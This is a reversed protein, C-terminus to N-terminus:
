DICWESKEATWDGVVARYENDILYNEGEIIVRDSKEEFLAEKAHIQANHANHRSSDTHDAKFIRGSDARRAYTVGDREETVLVMVFYTSVLVGSDQIKRTMLLAIRNFPGEPITFHEYGQVARTKIDKVIYYGWHDNTGRIWLQNHIQHILPFGIVRLAISYANVLLGKETPSARTDDYIHGTKAGLLTKPAWRYGVTDLRPYPFYMWAESIHKLQKWFCAMRDQRGVSLLPTRDIAMLSALCLSEDEQISTTRTILATASVDLSVVPPKHPQESCDTRGRLYFYVVSLGIATVLGIHSSDQYIALATLHIDKSDLTADAFQFILTKPLVGEQYTWLRSSWNSSYIYFALETVARGIVEISRLVNDLVLVKDACAYTDRMKRIAIRKGKSQRAPCCITDIWFPTQETKGPYLDQVLKSLAELQCQPMTNGHPNGLGDSWVHSIAVYPADFKGSGLNVVHHNRDWAVLPLEGAEVIAEVTTSDFGQFSCLCGNSTHVTRYSSKQLQSALCQTRTCLECHRRDRQFNRLMSTFYRYELGVTGQMLSVVRPCWGEQIMEYELLNARNNRWSTISEFKEIDALIYPPEWAFINTQPIFDNSSFLVQRLCGLFQGLLSLSLLFYPDLADEHEKRIFDYASQAAQLSFDLPAMDTELLRGSDRTAILQDAHAQLSRTHVYKTGSEEDIYDEFVVINGFIAHLLGFFLWQQLFAAAAKQGRGGPTDVETWTSTTFLEMQTWGQRDPYTNFDARDYEELCYYRIRPPSRVPDRPLPIHDM